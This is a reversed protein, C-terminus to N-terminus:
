ADRGEDLDIMNAFISYRFDYWKYAQGKIVAGCNKCTIEKYRADSLLEIIAGLYPQMEKITKACCKSEEPMDEFNKIRAKM